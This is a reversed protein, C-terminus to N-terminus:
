ESCPDYPDNLTHITLSIEIILLKHIIAICFNPFFM